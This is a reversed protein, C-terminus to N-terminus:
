TIYAIFNLIIIYVEKDYFKMYIYIHKKIKM